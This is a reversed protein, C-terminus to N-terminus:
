QQLSSISQVLVQHGQLLCFNILANDKEEIIANCKLGSRNHIIVDQM